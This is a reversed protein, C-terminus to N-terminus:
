GSDLIRFQLNPIVFALRSECFVFAASLSYCPILDIEFKYEKKLSCFLVAMIVPPSLPIPRAAAIM